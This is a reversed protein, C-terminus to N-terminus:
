ARFTVVPCRDADLLRPSRVTRDRVPNGTQFSATDIEAYISSNALPEAVDLTGGRIAFDGHVPALGFMHRTKFTVASGRPDIEYRGVQPKAVNEQKTAPNAM